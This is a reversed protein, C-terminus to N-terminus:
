VALFVIMTTIGINTFFEIQTQNDMKDLSLMEFRYVLRSRYISHCIQTRVM